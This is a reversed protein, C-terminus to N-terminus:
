YIHQLSSLQRSHFPRGAKMSSAEAVSRLRLGLGKTSTKSVGHSDGVVVVVLFIFRLCSIFCSVRM